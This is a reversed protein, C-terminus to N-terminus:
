PFDTGVTLAALVACRESKPHDVFRETVRGISGGVDCEVSPVIQACSDFEGASVRVLDEIYCEAALVVGRPINRPLRDVDRQGAHEYGEEGTRHWSRSEIERRDGVRGVVCGDGLS